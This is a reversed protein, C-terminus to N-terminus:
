EVSLFRLPQAQLLLQPRYRGWPSPGQEAGKEGKGTQEELEAKPELSQGATLTPGTVPETERKKKKRLLGTLPPPPPPPPRFFLIWVVGRM